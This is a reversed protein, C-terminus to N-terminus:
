PRTRPELRALYGRCPGRHIVRCRWGARGARRALTEPDVYLERYPRGKRGLYELEVDVVGVYDGGPVEGRHGDVPADELGDATSRDSRRLDASDVLVQGDSAVLRRLVDLLRGLGDLTRAIGSGNMLLLVTEYAGGEFEYVDARRADAVGRDRMIEVAHPLVDIATTRHGRRQLELSHLGTGAGVDLVSGRALDVARQEFAFWADPERFFLSVPLVESGWHDSHLVIEADTRGRFHVDHLARDHLEGSRLTSPPTDEEDPPRTSEGEM